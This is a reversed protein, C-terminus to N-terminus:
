EPSMKQNDMTIQGDGKMTSGILCVTLEELM